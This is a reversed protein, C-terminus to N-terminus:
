LLKKIVKFYLYWDTKSEIVNISFAYTPVNKDKVAYAHCEYGATNSDYEMTVNKIHMTKFLKRGNKEAFWNHLVKLFQTLEIRITWYQKWCKGHSKLHTM